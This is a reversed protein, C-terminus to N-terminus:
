DRTPRWAVIESEPVVGDHAWVFDDADDTWVAGSRMQVQVMGEPYPKEGRWEQWGGDDGSAPIAEYLEALRTVLEVDDFDRGSRIAAIAGQEIFDRKNM